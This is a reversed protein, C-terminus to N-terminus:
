NCHITQIFSVTVSLWEGFSYLVFHELFTDEEKKSM